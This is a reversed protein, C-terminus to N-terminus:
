QKHLYKKGIAILLRLCYCINGIDADPLVVRIYEILESGFLQLAILAFTAIRLVVSLAREPTIFRSITM